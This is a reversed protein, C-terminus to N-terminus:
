RHALRATSWLNPTESEPHVFVLTPDEGALTLLKPTDRLEFLRGGHRTMRLLRWRSENDRRDFYQVLFSGDPEWFLQSAASYSEQWRIFEEPSADHPMPERLRRFHEFPIKIKELPQGNVDFLYVTDSLAFLVALTDGRVAVDAFGSYAYAGAFEKPHGPVSFFSRVISDGRLNWLHVLATAHRARYRGTFAVLSDNIVSSSYLPGLPAQATRVLAAGASDFLAVKGGIDTVLLDGSPLRLASSVRQFETPGYGKSGFHATLKGDSRYLRVQAERSDAVIFGGAPDPTVKPTVNIVESNEELSIAGSWDIADQIREASAPARSDKPADACGFASSAMAIVIYGPLFRDRM